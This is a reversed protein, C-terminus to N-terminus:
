ECPVCGTAVDIHHKDTFTDPVEPWSEDLKALMAAKTEAVTEGAAIAALQGRIRARTGAYEPEIGAIWDLLTRADKQTM